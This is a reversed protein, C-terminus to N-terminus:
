SISLRTSADIDRHRRVQYQEALGYAVKGSESVPSLLADVKDVNILQSYLVSHLEVDSADNYRAPRM